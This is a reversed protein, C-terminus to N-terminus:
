SPRSTRASTCSGRSALRTHRLYGPSRAPDGVAASPGPTPNWVFGSDVDQLYLVEGCPDSVPDNFWPTLRFFHSNEAWTFGGGRETVCFGVSPNAIVNAWPAPPVRAGAVDIALDNVETRASYGNQHVSPETSPKIRVPPVKIPPQPSTSPKKPSREAHSLLNAAVIEGLGVGDCLVHIRATTRLLAVDDATLLDARRIFVGGPRELV